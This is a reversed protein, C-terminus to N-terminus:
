RVEDLVSVTEKLVQSFLTLPVSISLSERLTFTIRENCNGGVQAKPSVEIFPSASEKEIRRKWKNFTNHSLEKEKCYERQSRGSSYFQSVQKVWYERRSEQMNMGKSKRKEMSYWVVCSASKKVSVM